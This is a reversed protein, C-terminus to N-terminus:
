TRVNIEVDEYYVRGDRGRKLVRTTLVQQSETVKERARRLDEEYLECGIMADAVDTNLQLFNELDRMILEFDQRDVHSLLFKFFIDNARAGTKNKYWGYKRSTEYKIGLNIPKKALLHLAGADKYKTFAVEGRNMELMSPAGFYFNQLMTKQQYAFDADMTRDLYIAVYKQEVRNKIVLCDSSGEDIDADGYPIPDNGAIYPYTLQGKLGGKPLQTIFFNGKNNPTAVIDGHMGYELDYTFCPLVSEARNFIERSRVEVKKMINEPLKGKGSSSVVEEITLPYNKIRAELRSKDELKELLDRERLIVETAFKENNWGNQTGPIQTIQGEENEYQTMAMWAPVMIVVTRSADEGVKIIDRLANLSAQPIDKEVTGGWLLNGVRLMGKELTPYLSDLLAVRNTHLPFEDLFVYLMRAVSFSSPNKVTETCFIDPFVAKEDGDKTVINQIVQLYSHNKTQSLSKKTLAIDPDLGDWFPLTKEKFMKSIRDLDCSTMGTHCGPNTQIFYFPLCGAGISTLGFERRKVVGVDYRKDFGYKIQEFVIEDAERWHPRIPSGYNDQIWGEQIYFYHMGSLGAYGETWRKEQIDWYKRREAGTNFTPKSVRVYKAPRENIHNHIHFPTEIM